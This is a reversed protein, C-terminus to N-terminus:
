RLKQIPRIWGEPLSTVQSAPKQSAMQDKQISRSKQPAILRRALRLPKLPKRVSVSRTSIFRKLSCRSISPTKYLTKDPSHAWIAGLKQFQSELLDRAKQDRLQATKGGLFVGFLRIPKGQKTYRLVSTSICFGAKTVYGTKIGDLGAVQGLLKNHNTYFHHNYQFTRLKFYHLYEPFDRYISQALLVMDRATSYQRDDPLGTPNQFHTQTMGLQNARQNMQAVFREVRGGCLGSAIVYAADNASHVVLGRILTEVSVRQGMQLNLKSPIQYTATRPVQFQTNLTIEKRKLAEFLLRLTMKKTLSAPQQVRRSKDSELVQGTQGNVIIYSFQSASCNEFFGLVGLAGFLRSRKM